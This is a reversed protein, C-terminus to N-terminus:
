KLIFFYVIILLIVFIIIILVIPDMRMCFTMPEESVSEENDPDQYSNYNTFKENNNIRKKINKFNEKALAAFRAVEPSDDRDLNPHSENGKETYGETREENNHTNNQTNNQTNTLQQNTESNNKNNENDEGDGNEDDEQPILEKDLLNQKIVGEPELQEVPNKSAGEKTYYLDEEDINEIHSEGDKYYQITTYTSPIIDVISGGKALCDAESENGEVQGITNAAAVCTKDLYQVINNDKKFVHSKDGYKKRFGKKQILSLISLYEKEEDTMSDTEVERVGNNNNGAESYSNMNNSNKKIKDIKNKILLYTKNNENLSVGKDSLYSVIQYKNTAERIAHQILNDGKNNKLLVNGGKNYMFVLM